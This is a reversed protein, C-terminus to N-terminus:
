EHTHKNYEESTIEHLIQLDRQPIWYIGEAPQFIIDGSFQEDESATWMYKLHVISGNPLAESKLDDCKHYNIIGKYYKYKEIM